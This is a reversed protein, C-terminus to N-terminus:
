LTSEEGLIDLLAKLALDFHTNTIIFDYENAHSMEMEAAALRKQISEPSDGRMHLRAALEELSPPLIFVSLVQDKGLAKRISQAGQWDINLIPTKGLSCIKEVEARSTGYYQGYVEAWELLTNSEMMKKFTQPSVFHYHLGETETERRPRTTHTVVSKVQPAQKLLAEILTTKGAGSPASIIIMKSAPKM